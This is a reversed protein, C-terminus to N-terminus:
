LGVAIARNEQDDRRAQHPGDPLIAHQVSEVRRGPFHPLLHRDAPRGIM